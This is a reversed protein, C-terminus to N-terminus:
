TSSETTEQVIDSNKNTALAKVLAKNKQDNLSQKVNVRQNCLTTKSCNRLHFLILLTAAFRSENMNSLMHSYSKIWSNIQECASSNINRLSDHLNLNLHEHCYKTGMDNIYQKQLKKLKRRTNEEEKKTHRRASPMIIGQSQCESCISRNVAPTHSCGILLQKFIPNFHTPLQLPVNANACLRRRIKMHGDCIIAACCENNDNGDDGQPKLKCPYFISHSSWFEVFVKYFYDYNSMIFRDLETWINRPLFASCQNKFPQGIAMFLQYEILAYTIFVREFLRRDMKNRFDGNLQNFARTFTDFAVHGAALLSSYQKFIIRDFATQGGLYVYPGYEFYDSITFSYSHDDCLNTIFNPYIELYCQKSKCVYSVVTASKSTGNVLYLTVVHYKAAASSLLTGCQPCQNSKPVLIFPLCFPTSMPYQFLNNINSSYKMLEEEINKGHKLMNSGDDSKQKITALMDFMRHPEIHVHFTQHVIKTIHELRNNLCEPLITDISLAFDLMPLSFPPDPVFGSFMYSTGSGKGIGGM